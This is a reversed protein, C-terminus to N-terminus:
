YWAGDLILVCATNTLNKSSEVRYAWFIAPRAFFCPGALESTSIIIKKKAAFKEQSNGYINARSFPRSSKACECFPCPGHEPLIFEAQCAKQSQNVM